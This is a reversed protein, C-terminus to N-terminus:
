FEYSVGLKISRPKQTRIGNKPSRSVITKEKFMNEVVAYLELTPKIHKKLSLDVVTSAEIKTNDKCSAISCTKGSFIVRVTGEYGHENLFGARAQLQHKPVGPITMGNNVEGWYDSDFTENFVADTYTYNMSIPFITAHRVLQSEVELELGQITAQGANFGDGVECENTAGGSATCIGFMNEYDTHFYTAVFSYNEKKYRTGIEKIHAKESDSNTDPAPSFGQNYGLFIQWQDQLKYSAGFGFLTENDDAKLKPYGAQTNVQSRQADIYRDEVTRWREHRIGASLSLKDIQKTHYLYFASANSSVKKNNSSFGPEEGKLLPGLQANVWSASEYVQFRDEYDSSSRYGLELKNTSGTWIVKADTGMSEYKRNNHKLLIDIAQTNLGLLRNQDMANGFHASDLVSNISRGDIKDVKFWDRKFDNKYGTLIFKFADKEILYRLLLGQHDNDMNDYRTFGYRSYADKKYDLETLGVYTQNSDEKSGQYKLSAEQYIKSSKSSNIRFKLVYDQINFGTSDGSYGMIRDYGDSKKSLGEILFGFQERNFGYNLYSKAYDYSGFEQLVKGSDKAPISTSIMNLAGGITYPGHKIASAGKVVEIGSMRELSPFYYAAPASYPAPAILVGDEMLTIKGSRDAYTGRISINPRLGFGEEPRVQLGPVSALVNKPDGEKFENLKEKAIYSGSGPFLLREQEVNGLILVEKFRTTDSFLVKSLFSFLFFSICLMKLKNQLLSRM